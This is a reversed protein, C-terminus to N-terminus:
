VSYITPLTLHTYSVTSVTYTIGIDFFHESKSKYVAYHGVNFYELSLLGIAIIVHLGVWLRHLGIPGLAIILIFTAIFALM